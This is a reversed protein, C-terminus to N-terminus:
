EGISQALKFLKVSTELDYSQISKAYRRIHQALLIPSEESLAQLSEM